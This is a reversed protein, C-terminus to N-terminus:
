RAWRGWPRHSGGLGRTRARPGRPSAPSTGRPRHPGTLALTPLFHAAPDPAATGRARPSAWSPPGVLSLGVSPPPCVCLGQTDRHCRCRRMRRSRGQGPVATAGAASGGRAACPGGGAGWGREAGKTFVLFLFQIRRKHSFGAAPPGAV